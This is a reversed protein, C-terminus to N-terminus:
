PRLNSCQQAIAARTRYLRAKFTNRPIGLVEACEEVSYDWDYRLVYAQFLVPSLKTVANAITARQENRWLLSEPTATTVRMTPDLPLADRLAHAELGRLRMLRANIAVRCFWTKFKARGDHPRSTKLASLAADQVADEADERSNRQDRMLMARAQKMADLLETDSM